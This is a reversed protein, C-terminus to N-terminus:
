RPAPSGSRRPPDQCRYSAADTQVGRGTYAAVQPYACVLLTRDQVGNARHAVTVPGPARGSERWAEMVAQADFDYVDPGTGGLNHGMGPVMYLRVSRRSREPGLARVVAQYYDVNASPTIAVDAWGGWILLKGGRDVFRRLDPDTANVSHHVREAAALDRDYDLTRFDLDPKGFVVYRFFDLAYGSPQALYGRRALQARQRAHDPWIDERGHASQGRTRLHPAGGGGAGPDSVAALGGRPLGARGPRLPLAGPRRDAQGRGRRGRRLRGAGRRPHRAPPRHHHARAWQRGAVGRDPRLRLPPDAALGGVVLGDYDAPFRQAAKLGQRSQGGGGNWYSFRPPQGYYAVILAKAKLTTERWAREGWDALKEPQNLLFDARGAIGGGDTTATAYGRRLPGALMAPTMAGAYASWGAPLFRRNWGSKPMWVEVKVSTSASTRVEARVRCFVPLDAFAGPNAAPGPLAGAAIEVAETVTTNALSARALSKCDAAQAAGASLLAASLIAARLM